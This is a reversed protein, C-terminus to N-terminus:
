PAQRAGSLVALADQIAAPDNGRSAISVVLMLDGVAVRARHIYAPADNGSPKEAATFWAGHAFPGDIPRVAADLDAAGSALELQDRQLLCKLNEPANFSADKAVSWVATIRIVSDNGKPPVIKISAIEMDPEQEVTATWSAPLDLVLSGHGQIPFSRSTTALSPTALAVALTVAGFARAKRSALRM